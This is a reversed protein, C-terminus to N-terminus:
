KTTQCKANRRRQSEWAALALAALRIMRSEFQPGEALDLQKQLFHLWDERVHQDDHEPGGFQLDQQDRESVVMRWFHFKVAQDTV